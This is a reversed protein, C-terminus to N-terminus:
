AVYDTEIEMMVGEMDYHLQPSMANRMEPRNLAVWAIGEEDIEAFVCTHEIRRPM